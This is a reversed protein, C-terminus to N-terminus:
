GSFSASAEALKASADAFSLAADAFNASAESFSAPADAFLASRGGLKSCSKAFSVCPQNLNGLCGVFGVSWNAFSTRHRVFTFLRRTFRVVRRM